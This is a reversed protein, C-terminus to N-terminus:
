STKFVFIKKKVCKAIFKVKKLTGVALRVLTAIRPESEFTLGSSTEGFTPARRDRAGYLYWQLMWTPTSDPGSMAYTGICRAIHVIGHVANGKMLYCSTVKLLSLM